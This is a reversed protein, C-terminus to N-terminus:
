KPKKLGTTTNNEPKKELEQKVLCSPYYDKGKEKELLNSAEQKFNDKHQMVLLGALLTNKAGPTLGKEGNIAEKMTKAEADSPPDKRVVVRTENSSSSQCNLQGQKDWLTNGYDEHLTQFYKRLKKIQSFFDSSFSHDNNQIKYTYSKSSNVNKVNELTVVVGNKLMVVIGNKLMVEVGNKLTIAVWYNGGPATIIQDDAQLPQYPAIQIEEGSHKIKCASSPCYFDEIYGVYKSMEQASGTIVILLTSLVPGITLVPHRWLPKYFNFQKM